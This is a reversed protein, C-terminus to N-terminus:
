VSKASLSDAVGYVSDNPRMKMSRHSSKIDENSGSAADADGDWMNLPHPSSIRLVQVAASSFPVAAAAEAGVVAPGVMASCVMASSVMAKDGRHLEIQPALLTFWGWKRQLKSGYTLHAICVNTPLPSSSSHSSSSYWSTLCCGIVHEHHEMVIQRNWSSKSMLHSVLRQSALTIM